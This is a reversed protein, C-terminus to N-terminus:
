IGKKQKIRARLAGMKDQTEMAPQSESDEEAALENMEELFSEAPEEADLPALDMAAAKKKKLIADAISAYHEEHDPLSPGSVDGGNAMKRSRRQIEHAIALSQEQPKGSEMESQTNKNFAAKSPRKILPM